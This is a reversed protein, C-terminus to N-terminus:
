KWSIILILIVLRVIALLLM